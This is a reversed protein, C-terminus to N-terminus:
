RGAVIGVVACLAIIAAVPIRRFWGLGFALAVLSLKLGDIGSSQLLKWLVPVFVGVVALNLGHIFGEVAPHDQVRSYLKEVGVVLMPPIVIGVLAAVSGWPGLMLYGL